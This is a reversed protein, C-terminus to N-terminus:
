EAAAILFAFPFPQYSFRSFGSIILTIDYRDLTRNSASSGVRRTTM